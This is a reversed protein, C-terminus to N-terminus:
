RVGMNRFTHWSGSLLKGKAVTGPFMQRSGREGRATALQDMSGRIFYVALTM